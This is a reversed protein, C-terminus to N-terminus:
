VRDAAGDAKSMRKLALGAGISYAVSGLFVDTPITYLCEQSTCGPGFLSQWLYTMRPVPAWAANWTQALSLATYLFPILGVVWVFVAAASQRSRTVWYGGISPALIACMTLQRFPTQYYFHDVFADFVFGIVIMVAAFALHFPFEPLWTKSRMLNNM